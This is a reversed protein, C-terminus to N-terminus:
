AINAPRDELRRGNTEPVIKIVRDLSTCELMRSVVGCNGLFVLEKGCSPVLKYAHILAGLGSSDMLEIGGLHLEVRAADGAACEEIDRRLLPATSYDVVGALYIAAVSGHREVVHRLDVNMLIKRHAIRKAM